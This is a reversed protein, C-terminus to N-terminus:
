RGISLSDPCIGIKECCNEDVYATFRDIFLVVSDRTEDQIAKDLSRDNMDVTWLRIYRNTLIEKDCFRSANAFDKNAGNKIM